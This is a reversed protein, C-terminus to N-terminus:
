FVSITNSPVFLVPFSENYTYRFYYFYFNNETVGLLRRPSAMRQDTKLYLYQGVWHTNKEWHAFM